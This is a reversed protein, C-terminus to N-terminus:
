RPMYHKERQFVGRISFTHLAYRMADMADDNIKAPNEKGPLWHYYVIESITESCASSFMLKTSGSMEDVKLLDSVSQIGDMVQKLAPVIPIRVLRFTNINQPSASDAYFMKIEWKAKLNQARRVWSDVTLNQSFVLIQEGISEELCYWIGNKSLGFVLICAPHDIGYGWDIGAVVRTLKIVNDGTGVSRRGSPLIFRYENPNFVHIAENFEEYIQGEFTDWSAEFTRKFYKPPMIKRLREVEEKDIYPNDITRWTIFFISPDTGEIYADFLRKKAWNPGKPTGTLLMWGKRDSLRTRAEDFMSEKILAFEDIWVGYLKLGQWSEPRSCTLFYVYSLGKKGRIIARHKTGHYPEVMLESPVTRQWAPLIVRELMPFDPAGISITYPEGNDIDEQRFGPQNIARDFTDAVGCTTKGGRAGTVMVRVRHTDFAQHVKIQRSFPQYDLKVKTVNDDGKGGM